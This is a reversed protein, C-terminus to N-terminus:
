AVDPEGGKVATDNRAFYSDRHILQPYPRPDKSKAASREPHRSFIQRLPYSDFRGRWKRPSLPKSSRSPWWAGRVRGFASFEWRDVDLRSRRIKEARLASQLAGIRRPWLVSEVHRIVSVFSLPQKNQRRLRKSSRTSIRGSAPSSNRISCNAM